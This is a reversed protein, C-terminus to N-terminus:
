STPKKFGNNQLVKKLNQEEFVIRSYIINDKYKEASVDLIEKLSLVDTSLEPFLKNFKKPGLGKVGPIKDSNDGLLTKMIIFNEPPINYKEKIDNPTYFKKEM